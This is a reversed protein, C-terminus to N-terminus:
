RLPDRGQLKGVYVERINSKVRTSKVQREQRFGIEKGYYYKMITCIIFSLLQQDSEFITAKQVVKSNFYLLVPPFSNAKPWRFRQKWERLKVRV